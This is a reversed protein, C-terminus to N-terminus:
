ARPRKRVIGPGQGTPEEGRGLVCAGAEPAPAGAARAAPAPQAGRQPDSGPAPAALGCRRGRPRSAAPAPGRPAPGRHAPGRPAPRDRRRREARRESCRSPLLCTHAGGPGPPRAAARVSVRLALCCAGPAMRAAGSVSSLDPRGLILSGPPVRLEDGRSAAAGSVRQTWAPDRRAQPCSQRWATGSTSTRPTSAACPPTVLSPRCRGGM